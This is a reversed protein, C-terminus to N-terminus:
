AFALDVMLAVSESVGETGFFGVDQNVLPLDVKKITKYWIMMGRKKGVTM